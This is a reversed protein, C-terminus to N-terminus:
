WFALFVDVNHFLLFIYVSFYNLFPIFFGFIIDFQNHTFYVETCRVCM